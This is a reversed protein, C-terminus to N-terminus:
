MRGVVAILGEALQPATKQLAAVLVKKVVCRLRSSPKEVNSHVYLQHIQLNYRGLLAALTSSSFYAIHDPMVLEKRQIAVSLFHRLSFANPVTLILTANFRHMLRSVGELCLGPNALHELIEGAVIVDIPGDIELEGVKEADWQVLHPIGHQRLLDLSEGDIDVGIVQAAVKMLRLHLMKGDQLSQIANGSEACGLHLVRKGQCYTVIFDDRSTVFELPPIAYVMQM